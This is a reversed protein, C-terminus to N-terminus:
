YHEHKGSYIILHIKHDKEAKYAYLWALSLPKESMKSTMRTFTKQVYTKYLESKIRNIFTCYPFGRRNRMFKKVFCLMHMLIHCM